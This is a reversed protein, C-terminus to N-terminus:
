FCLLTPHRWLRFYPLIGLGSLDSRLRSGSAARIYTISHTLNWGANGRPEAEPNKEGARGQPELNFAATMRADAMENTGLEHM